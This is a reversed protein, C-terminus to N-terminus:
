EEVCDFRALYAASPQGASTSRATWAVLLSRPSRITTAAYPTGFTLESTAVDHRELLRGDHDHQLLVLRSRGLEHPELSDDALEGWLVLVGQESAVLVPGSVPRAPTDSTSGVVNGTADLQLLRVVTPEEDDPDGVERWAAWTRGGHAAMSALRPARGPTPRVRGVEDMRAQGPAGPAYRMVIVEPECGTDDDDCVRNVVGVYHSGTWEVAAASGPYDSLPAVGIGARVVGGAEDLLAVRPEVLTSNEVTPSRWSVLYGRGAYAGSGDVSPGPSISYAVSAEQEIFVENGPQWATTDFPRFKVGPIVSASAEDSHLYAMALGGGPSTSRVLKGPAHADIGYLQMGHAVSVGDPWDPAVTVEAVRIDPHWFHDHTVAYALRAPSEDELTVLLPSYVGESYTFMEISDDRPVYVCSAAVMADTGADGPGGGVGGGSVGGM